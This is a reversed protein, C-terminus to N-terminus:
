NVWWFTDFHKLVCWSLENMM